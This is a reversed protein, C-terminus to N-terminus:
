YKEFVKNKNQKFEVMGKGKTTVLTRYVNTSISEDGAM